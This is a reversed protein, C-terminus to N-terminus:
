AARVAFIAGIAIMAAGVALRLVSESLVGTLRAGLWSGPVAGAAGAALVNWDVGSDAAYAAFGALGLAFGVVLNTGAARRIDLGVARVLAPMRLTGLIVGAAGGIAGIALGLLPLRGM